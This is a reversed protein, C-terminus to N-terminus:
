TGESGRRGEVSPSSRPDGYGGGGPTRVSLVDGSELDFFWLMRGDTEDLAYVGGKGTAVDNVDM